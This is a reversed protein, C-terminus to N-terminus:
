IQMILHGLLKCKEFFFNATELYMYYLVFFKSAEQFYIILNEVIQELIEFIKPCESQVFIIGYRM